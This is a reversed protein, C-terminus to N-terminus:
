VKHEQLLEFLAYICERFNDQQTILNGWNKANFYVGNRIIEAIATTM